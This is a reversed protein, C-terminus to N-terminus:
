PLFIIKLSIFNPYIKCILNTLNLYSNVMGACGEGKFKLAGELFYDIQDFNLHKSKNLLKSRENVKFLLKEGM